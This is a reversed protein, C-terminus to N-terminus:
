SIKPATGRAFRIDLRPAGDYACRAAAKQCSSQPTSRGTKAAQQRDFLCKGRLPVV